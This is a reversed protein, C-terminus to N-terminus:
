VVPVANVTLDDLKYSGAGKDSDYGFAYLHLTAPADLTVTGTGSFYSDITTNGGSELAGSGVNFLDGTFTANKPQDYVFFQPFVQVASTMLPTAKANVSIVYTGAKLDFSGVETANAVFGGGTAVSAVSGLDQTISPSPSYPVPAKTFWGELDVVLQVTGGSGNYLNIKGDTLAVTVQNPITEGGLFNLNSALPQAAGDPFVTIYGNVEPKTVTVNLMVATADVPVGNVGAVALTLTTDSPVAGLYGGTGNRTDLIRVPATPSYNSGPDATKATAAAAGTAAILAGVVLAASLKRIRM